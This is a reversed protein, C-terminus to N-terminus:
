AVASCAAPGAPARAPPVIVAASLSTMGELFLLVFDVPPDQPAGAVEWCASQCCCSCCRSEPDQLRPASESVVRLARGQEGVQPLCLCHCGLHFRQLCRGRPEWHPHALLHLFRCSWSCSTALPIRAAAVASRPRAEDFVVLWAPPPRAHIGPVLAPAPVPVSRLRSALWPGYGTADCVSGPMGQHTLSPLLEAPPFRRLHHHPHHHPSFGVTETVFAFHILFFFFSCPVNFAYNQPFGGRSSLLPFLRLLVFSFLM